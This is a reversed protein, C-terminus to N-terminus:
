MNVGRPAPNKQQRFGKFGSKGAKKLGKGEQRAKVRLWGQFRRTPSPFALIGLFARFDANKFFFRV